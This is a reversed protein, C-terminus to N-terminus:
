FLCCHKGSQRSTQDSTAQRRIFVYEHVVMICYQFSLKRHNLLSAIKEAAAKDRAGAYSGVATVLRQWSPEGFLEVKYSKSLWLEIMDTM